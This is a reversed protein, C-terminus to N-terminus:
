KGIGVQSKLVYDGRLTTQVFLCLYFKVALREEYESFASGGSFWRGLVFNVYRRESDVDGM